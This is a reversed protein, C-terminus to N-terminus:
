DYLLYKKRTEEFKGLGENCFEGINPISDKNEIMQRIKSNGILIDFPLKDEEFEYPPKRWEFDEPHTKRIALIIALATRLPQFVTRDTIHLQFGACVKGKYKSWLPKFYLPRLRCGDLDSLEDLVIESKLWPAGFYEFPKTTGRGESINTGELLCMGPYVTATDLTPMNPSPPVWPLGTEDFWLRREWGQMKIIDLEVNIAFKGNFMLALEGATIGHRVPIPFLGVFSRFSEDLLPGEIDTGNIPNSRDLVVFRKNYETAREMALAMTWIFTYYRAGVDQIDFVLSDVNELMEEDPSLRNGYLSFIQIDTKKDSSSM